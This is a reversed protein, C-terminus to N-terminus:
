WSCPLVQMEADVGKADPAIDFVIYYTVTVTPPVDYGLQKGGKYTSYEYTAGADDSVKYTRGASDKLVFDSTNVGFSQNGTNKMTVTVVVWTGAADSKSGYQSTVLTIGPKEVKTVTMNWNKVSVTQAVRAM